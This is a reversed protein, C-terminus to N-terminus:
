LLVQVDIQTGAGPQSLIKFDANMEKARNKMNGIGNGKKNNEIAFGKGYDKIVM